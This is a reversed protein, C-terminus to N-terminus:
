GAQNVKQFVQHPFSMGVKVRGVQCVLSKFFFFCCFSILLTTFHHIVLDTTEKGRCYVPSNYVMANLLICVAGFCLCGTVEGLFFLGRSHDARGVSVKARGHDLTPIQVM